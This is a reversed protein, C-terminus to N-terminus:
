RCPKRAGRHFGDVLEPSAELKRQDFYGMAYIAKLDDVVAERSFRDGAHTKMVPLIEETAIHKNGHLRIQGIVYDSSNTRGYAMDPAGITLLVLATVVKLGPKRM